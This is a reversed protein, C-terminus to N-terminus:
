QLQAAQDEMFHQARYQAEREAFTPAIDKWKLPVEMQRMYSPFPLIPLSDLELANPTASLRIATNIADLLMAPVPYKPTKPKPAEIKVKYGLLSEDDESIFFGNDWIHDTKLTADILLTQQFLKVMGGDFASMESLDLKNGYYYPTVKASQLANIVLGQMEKAFKDNTPIEKKNIQLNM